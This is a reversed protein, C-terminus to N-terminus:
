WIEAGDAPCIEAITLPGPDNPDNPDMGAATEDNDFIGDGDTDGDLTGALYEDLNSIGDGDLDGAADTSDNPDLGAIIENWDPIGDSDSDGDPDALYNIVLEAYDSGQPLTQTAPDTSGETYSASYGVEHPINDFSVSNGYGSVTATINYIHGKYVPVTIGSVPIQFTRIDEPPDGYYVKVDPYNASDNTITITGSVPNGDTDYLMVKLNVLEWAAVRAYRSQNRDNDELALAAQGLQAATNFVDSNYNDYPLLTAFKKFYAMMPTTYANQAQISTSGSFFDFFRLHMDRHSNLATAIETATSTDNLEYLYFYGLRSLTSFVIPEQDDLFNLSFEYLAVAADRSSTKTADNVYAVWHKDALEVLKSQIYVHEFSNGGYHETLFDNLETRLAVREAATLAPTVEKIVALEEAVFDDLIDEDIVTYTISYGLLSELGGKCASILSESTTASLDLPNLSDVVQQVLASNEYTVAKITSFSFPASQETDTGDQRVAKVRYAFSLGPTLGTDTFTTSSIGSVLLEDNRYISYTVGTEGELVADWTMTIKSYTAQDLVIEEPGPVRTPDTGNLFEQYNNVGDGDPDDCSYMAQTGFYSEMWTFFATYATQDGPTIFISRSATSPNDSTDYAVVTYNYVGDPSELPINYATQGSTVTAVLTSGRFVKFYSLTFGDPSVWDWSLNFVDILPEYTLNYPYYPKDMVFSAEPGASPDALDATVPDALNQYTVSKGIEHPMGSISYKLANGGAVDFSAVIDYIHGKYVPVVAQGNTITFTREDTFASETDPFVWKSDTNATVNTVLISGTLANDSSDKCNITLNVLEWADIRDFRKQANANDAQLTLASQALTKASNFTTTDYTDYALLTPFYKFYLHAPRSYSNYAQFSTSTEFFDFFRLYQDKHADLATVIEANTSTDTIADLEFYALRSLTNAVINEQDSLYKLSFDYLLKAATKHDNQWHREALEVLKSQIYVHEFSNGGYHETLFNDLETQVALREAETMEPVTEKIINLEETVFTNLTDSDIVTYTISTSLLSELGTKVASILTVSTTTSVDTGHLSDVVSEVATSNDFTVSKITKFTWESSAASSTGGSDVAVIKYTYATGNALGTDTYSTSTATGVHTNNRYIKYSAIQTTEDGPEWEISIKTYTARVLKLDVPAPVDAFVQFSFLCVLLFLFGGQFKM